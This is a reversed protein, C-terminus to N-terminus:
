ILHLPISEISTCVNCRLPPPIELKIKSSSRRRGVKPPVKRYAVVEGSGNVTLIDDTIGNLGSNIGNDEIVPVYVGKLPKDVGYMM